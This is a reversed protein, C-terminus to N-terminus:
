ATAMEIRLSFACGANPENSELHLDGGLARSLRKALALGVGSGNTGGFALPEFVRGVAEPALGPGTDSVDIRLTTENWDAGHEMSAKLHVSGADTYRVANDILIALVQSLREPDTSFSDPLSSDFDVGLSVNKAKADPAFQTVVTELLPKLPQQVHQISLSGAELQTYDMVESMVRLLHRSSDLVEELGQTRGSSVVQGILDSLNENVQASLRELFIGRLVGEKDASAKATSLAQNVTELSAAYSSAQAEAARLELMLEQERKSQNWKEVMAHALQRIEVSDFPKKLILLKDSQGLADITQSWSYDSFATCIVVGLDPDVNWLEQITKVGDWGPPMRVDVFAMAFPTGAEKAQRAMELAEEGQMASSTTFEDPVTTAQQGADGGFFAARADDLGAKAQSGGLIKKFDEHISSNDDVLLIRRNPVPSTM